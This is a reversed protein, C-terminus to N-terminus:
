KSEKLDKLVSRLALLISKQVIEAISEPTEVESSVVNLKEELYSELDKLSYHPIMKSECICYEPNAENSLQGRFTPCEKNICILIPQLPKTM